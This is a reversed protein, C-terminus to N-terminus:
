GLCNASQDAHNHNPAAALLQVQGAELIQWGQAEVLRDATNNASPNSPAIADGTGEPREAATTGGTLRQDQWISQGQLVQSAAQPVGGRGSAVFTNGGLEGCAKAVQDDSALAETLLLASQLPDAEPTQLLVVGSFDTGQESFATIDSEATLATRFDTGLIAQASVTIKGGFSNVANATIDSNDIALLVTTDIEINGGTSLGTANTSILSEDRILILPATLDIDSGTASGTSNTTISSGERLLLFDGNLTINAGTGDVTDATLSSNELTINTSDLTINAGGGSVTDATFISDQILIQDANQVVINGAPGTGPPATSTSSSPSNSVNITAGDQVTLDPTSVTVNGGAGGAVIANAFLGSRGQAVNGALTVSESATVTVNGAASNSVTSSSIQGGGTARLQATNITVEGGTGAGSASSTSVIRSPGGSNFGDVEVSQAQIVVNGADGPAITRAGIDGGNTVSVTNAVINIDGGQGTGPFPGLARVLTGLASPRPASGSDITLTEANVSIQGSEGTGFIFMLVQAGDTIDVNPANLHIRNTGDEAGLSISGVTSLDTLTLRDTAELQFSGGSGTQFALTAGSDLQVNRGVLSLSQGTPNTMSAGSVTIDGSGAGMQLGIPTSFTLLPVVDPDGANVLAPDFIVSEATSAVFAGPISLSASPGFIIGNPNLLFLNATGGVALTGDITSLNGVSLTTVEGIINDVGPDSFTVTAGADVNFRQFTHFLSTGSTTGGSITCTGSCSAGGNLLTPAGDRVISQAMASPHVLIGGLVIGLTRLFIRLSATTM